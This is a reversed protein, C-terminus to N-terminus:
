QQQRTARGPSEASSYGSLRMAWWKTLSATMPVISDSALRYFPDLFAHFDAPRMREGMATSGRIDSFLVDPDGRRDVPTQSPRNHM